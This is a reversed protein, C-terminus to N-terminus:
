RAPRPAPRRRRPRLLSLVLPPRRPPGDIQTARLRLVDAIEATRRFPDAIVEGTAISIAAVLSGNLDAGLLAGSPARTSDLQALQAVDAADDAGLRRITVGATPIETPAPLLTDKMTTVQPDSRYPYPVTTPQHKTIAEAQGVPPM